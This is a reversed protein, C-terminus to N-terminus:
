EQRGEKRGVLRAEIVATGIGIGGIFPALLTLGTSSFDLTIFCIAIALLLYVKKMVKKNKL